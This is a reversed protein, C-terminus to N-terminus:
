SAQNIVVVRRNEAGKPDSPDLPQCFAKGVSSLRQPSVGMERVLFDKVAAARLESLRANYALSGVADTHGEIGFQKQDSLGENLAKGLRRLTEMSEPKLQASGFEFAVKFDIMAQGSTDSQPSCGPPAVTSAARAQDQRPAPRGGRTDSSVPAGSTSARTYNPNAEPRVPAGITPLGQHGGQLAPPIPRLAREIENQTPAGQGFSPQGTTLLLIGTGAALIISCGRKM